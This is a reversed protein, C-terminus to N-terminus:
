NNKLNKFIDFPSLGEKKDDKLKPYIDEIEKGRYKPAVKKMPIKVLLEQLVIETINAIKEEEGIFITNEDLESRYEEKMGKMVIIEIEAEIEEQFKEVSLDCILNAITRAKGKLILKDNHVRLSGEVFVESNIVESEFEGDAKGSIEVFHKGNSLGHVNLLLM